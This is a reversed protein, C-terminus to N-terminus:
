FGRSMICAKHCQVLQKMVPDKYHSRLIGMCATFIEDGSFLALLWPSCYALLMCDM